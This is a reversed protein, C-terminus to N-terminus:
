QCSSKELAKRLKRHEYPEFTRTDWSGTEIKPQVKRNRAANRGESPRVYGNLRSWKGSVMGRTMKLRRACESVTLGSAKMEKLQAVLIPTWAIM